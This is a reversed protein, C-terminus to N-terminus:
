PGPKTNKDQSLVTARLQSLDADPWHEKELIPLIVSLMKRSAEMSEEKNAYTIRGFKYNYFKWEVKSFYSFKGTLNKMLVNFRADGRGGLFKGNVSFFYLLGFTKEAMFQGPETGTFLLYSANVQQKKGGDYIEFTVAESGSLRNGSGLYCEEPRHPVVDPLPYYTIFLSCFRANSTESATTDELEWQIYEDTGMTELMDKNEIRSKHVVKYPALNFSDLQSLSKKLPIPEKNLYIGLRKITVSMLSGTILLVGACILFAPQIYNAKIIQTIDKKVEM